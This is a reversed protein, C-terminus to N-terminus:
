IEYKNKKAYDVPFWGFGVCRGLDWSDWGVWDKTSVTDVLLKYSWFFHGSGCNWADLQSKALTSYIEKKEEDSVIITSDNEVGNLVTQGGKTDHGCAYSNFLCWEGCIVPFYQQMETIDKAFNEEVFKVYDEVNQDCGM